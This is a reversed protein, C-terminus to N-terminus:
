PVLSSGAVLEVYATLGVIMVTKGAGDVVNVTMSSNDGRFLMGSNFLDQAAGVAEARVKSISNCETGYDDPSQSGNYIHFFYRSM